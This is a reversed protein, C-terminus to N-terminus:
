YDGNYILDDEWHTRRSAFFDSYNKFIPEKEKKAPTVPTTPRPVFNLNSCLLGKYNKFEGFFQVDNNDDLLIFKNNSKESINFLLNSIDQKEIGLIDILLRTDSKNSSIGNLSYIVGNHFLVQRDNDFLFPQCNELNIGGSTAIRFHLIAEKDQLNNCLTKLQQKSPYMYKKITWTEGDNIAVGVGDPNTDYAFRVTEFDLSTKDTKYIIVCMKLIEM